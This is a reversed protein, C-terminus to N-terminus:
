EGKEEGDIEGMRERVGGGGRLGTVLEAVVDAGGLIAVVVAVSFPAVAEGGGALVADEQGVAAHLDHGVGHIAIGSVDSLHGVLSPRTSPHLWPSSPPHGIRRRHRRRHLSSLGAPPLADQRPHRRAGQRTWKQEGDDSQERDSVGM